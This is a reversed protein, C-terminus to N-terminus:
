RRLSSIRLYPSQSKDSNLIRKGHPEFSKFDEYRCTGQEIAKNAIYDALQNGERLIHQFTYQKDQLCTKIEEVIDSLAWPTVWKGKLVKCLLMSDTQIIVQNYQSNKCHKSAELIAVAEAMTSTTNEIRAGKAFIIDGNEDRLCYAYSSLGYCGKAAGDTNYKIWGAPPSEWKVQIAKIKPRYEELERLMKPWSGGRMTSRNVKAFMNMHRTVNHIIRPLSTSKGEHKQKNRRKWLEWIIFGPIARYYPRMDTKINAGWWLM